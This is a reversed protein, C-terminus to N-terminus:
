FNIGEKYLAEYRELDKKQKEYSVNATKFAAEKLESDVEVLVSGAEKYDGIEARVKV